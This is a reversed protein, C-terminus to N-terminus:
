ELEITVNTCGDVNKYDIIRYSSYEGSELLDFFEDVGDTGFTDIVHELSALAEYNLGGIKNENKCTAGLKDKLVVCLHYLVFENLVEEVSGLAKLTTGGIRVISDLITGVEAPFKFTKVIM